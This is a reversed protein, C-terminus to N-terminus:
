TRTSSSPPSRGPIAATRPSRDVRHDRDERPEVQRDRGRARGLHRLARPAGGAARGRGGASSRDSPRCRVPLACTQRVGPDASPVIDSPPLTSSRRRSRRAPRPRLQGRAAPPTAPLAPAAHQLRDHRAAAAPAPLLAAQRRARGASAPGYRRDLPRVPGSARTTSTTRSTTSSAARRRARDGEPDPHQGVDRDARRASSPAGTTRTECSCPETARSRPSTTRAGRLPDPRHGQERRAPRLAARSLVIPM